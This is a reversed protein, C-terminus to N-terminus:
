AESLMKKMDYLGAGKNALYKAADVAGLAFLSRDHAEHKLTLTQTGDSILVEHIGVVNALRVSSIGVENPEKLCYGNRGVVKKVEQREEKVADYLMLATGSPADVKKNHHIEVIEVDANGMVRVAKKVLDSLVAIGLSMNGSYFVAVEKSAKTILEREEDTHGTSCLVIPTKTAVAYKLLDPTATHFSFDIIGDTKEKVEFISKYGKGEEFNIDVEVFDHGQETLAKEVARGMRGLAGHVIFKM